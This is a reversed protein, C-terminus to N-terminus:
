RSSLAKHHGSASASEQEPDKMSAIWQRILENAETDVMSRGFEPMVEGSHTTELRYMLISEEPKGPVIDFSRGGTGKGAAVPGKYVGLQFPDTVSAYLHLGSNRAPGTKSHCHACNIELWARAREEVSGTSEDDWDALRPAEDPSPADALLGSRSWYALQNEKGHEYAFDGNLLRAKPGIPVNEVHCRKCDNVNPVLHSIQRQEGDYHIWQVDVSAGTLSLTAETQEDNWVYPLGIWGKEERKLIRTEIMRRGKSLDSMDNDHGFTKAIVTGVPFEFIDDANYPVSEGEPIRVYRQKAAYDSFLPTNLDYEVVGKTPTHNVLQGEFLKYESLTKPFKSKRRRQKKVPQAAVATEDGVASDKSQIKHSESESREAVPSQQRCGAICIALCAFSLGLRLHRQFIFRSCSGGSYM